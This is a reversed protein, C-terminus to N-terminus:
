DQDGTGLWARDDDFAGRTPEYSDRPRHRARVEHPEIERHIQNQVERGPLDQRPAINLAQELKPSIDPTPDRATDAPNGLSHELEALVARLNTIIEATTRTM